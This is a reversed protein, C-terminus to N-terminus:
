RLALEELIVQGDLAENLALLLRSRQLSLEHRLSDSHCHVHLIGQHLSFKQVKQFAEEGLIQRWANQVLALQYASKDKFPSTLDGLVAQISQLNPRAM